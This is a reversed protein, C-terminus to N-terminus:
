VFVYVSVLWISVFLSLPSRFRAGVCGGHGLGGDASRRVQVTYPFQAGGDPPKRYIATVANLVSASHAALESLGPQGGFARFRAVDNFVFVEVYKVTGEALRRKSSTVNASGGLGQMFRAIDGHRTILKIAIITPQIRLLILTRLRLLMRTLVLMVRTRLITLM